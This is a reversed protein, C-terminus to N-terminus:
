ALLKQTSAYIEKRIFMLKFNALQGKPLLLPFINGYV